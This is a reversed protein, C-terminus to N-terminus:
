KLLPDELANARRYLTTPILMEPPVEEGEFYRAIIRAAERGIRDPYQIPDAFIKGHYGTVISRGSNGDYVSYESRAQTVTFGFVMTRRGRLTAWHDWTFEAQTEPKFIQYLQTGWEGSSTVGGLTNRDLNNVPLNNVLM